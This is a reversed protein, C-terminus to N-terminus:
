LLDFQDTLLDDPVSPDAPAPQDALVIVVIDGADGVALSHQLGNKTKKPQVFGVAQDVGPVPQPDGWGTSQNSDIYFNTFNDGDGPSTFRLLRLTLYDDDGDIWRRTYGDTFHYRQLAAKGEAPKAFGAAAGALNLREDAKVGDWIYAEDPYPLVFQLIDGTHAAFTAGPVAGPDGTPDSPDGTSFPDAAPAASPRGEARDLSDDHRLTFFVVTGFGLCALIVIIAVITVIVAARSAPPKQPPMGPHFYGPQPGGPWGGAPPRGGGPWGAPPAPYGSAPAQGPQAYGFPQAYGGPPTPQSGPAAPYGGPPTPPAPPPAYGAAPAAYDAPPASGGPPVEHGAPPPAPAAAPEHPPEAAPPPPASAYPFPATPPESLTPVEPNPDASPPAAPQAPTEAAPNEAPVEPM